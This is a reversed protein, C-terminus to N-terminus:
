CSEICAEVTFLAGSTLRFPLVIRPGKTKLTLSIKDGTIITPLALNFKFGKDFLVRKAGGVIMNTIEGVADEVEATIEKFQEGLMGSIIELIAETTFSIIVSGIVNPGALGIVGTVSGSTQNSRSLYPAEATVQVFAMTTVVNVTANVFPNIHDVNM